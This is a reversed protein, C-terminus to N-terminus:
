NGHHIKKTLPNLTLKLGAALINGESRTTRKRELGRKNKCSGTKAYREISTRVFARIVNFFKAISSNNRRIKHPYVFVARLESKNINVM